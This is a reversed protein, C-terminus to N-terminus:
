VKFFEKVHRWFQEDNSSWRARGDRFDIEFTKKRGKRLRFIAARAGIYPLAVVLALLAAAWAYNFVPIWVMGMGLSAVAACAGVALGLRSWDTNHREGRIRRPEIQFEVGDPVWGQDFERRFRAIEPHPTQENPAEPVSAM